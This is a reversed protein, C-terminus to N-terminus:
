TQSINTQIEKINEKFYDALDMLDEVIFERSTKLVSKNQALLDKEEKFVELNIKTVRIKENIKILSDEFYGVQSNNELSLFNNQKYVSNIIVDKSFVRFQISESLLKSSLNSILIKNAGKNLVVKGIRNISAGNNFITINSIESPTSIIRNDSQSFFDVISFSFFIFSVLFLIKKM